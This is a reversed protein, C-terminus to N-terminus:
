ANPRTSTTTSLAPIERLAANWWTVMVSRRLTIAVSTSDMTSTVWAAIGNRSSRPSLM